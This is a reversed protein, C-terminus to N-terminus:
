IRWVHYAICSCTGFHLLFCLLCVYLVHPLQSPPECQTLSYVNQERPFFTVLRITVTNSLITVIIVTIAWWSNDRETGCKKLHPLFSDVLANLPM